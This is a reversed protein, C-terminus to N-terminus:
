GSGPDPDEDENRLKTASKRFLRFATELDLERIADNEGRSLRLFAKYASRLSESEDEGAHEVTKLARERDRGVGAQLRAVM